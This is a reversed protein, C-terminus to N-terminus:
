TRKSLTRVKIGMHRPGKGDESISSSFTACDTSLKNLRKYGLLAIGVEPDEFVEEGNEFQKKWFPYPCEMTEPDTLRFGVKNEEM